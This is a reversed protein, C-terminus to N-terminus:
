TEGEMRRFSVLSFGPFSFYFHSLRFTSPARPPACFGMDAIQQLFLCRAAWVVIGCALLISETRLLDARSLQVVTQFVYLITIIGSIEYSSVEARERAASTLIRKSKCEYCRLQDVNLCAYGHWLETLRAEERKYSRIRLIYTFM